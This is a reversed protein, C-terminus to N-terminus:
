SWRLLFVSLDQPTYFEFVGEGVYYYPIDHERLWEGCPTWGHYRGDVIPAQISAVYLGTITNQNM